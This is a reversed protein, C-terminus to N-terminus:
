GQVGEAEERIKEELAAQFARPIRTLDYRFLSSGTV